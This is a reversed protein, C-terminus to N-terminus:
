PQLLPVTSHTLNPLTPFLQSCSLMVLSWVLLPVGDLLRDTVSCMRTFLSAHWVCSRVVFVAYVCRMRPICIWHACSSERTRVAELIDSLPVRATAVNLRSTDGGGGGGGGLSVRALSAFALESDSDPLAAGAERLASRFAMLDVCGDRRADHRRLTAGLLAITFDSKTTLYAKLAPILVRPNGVDLFSYGHETQTLERGLASAAAAPGGLSAVYAQTLVSEPTRAPARTPTGGAMRSALTARGGGGGASGPADGGTPWSGFILLDFYADDEVGTSIDAYYAEFEAASVSRSAGGGDGKAGIGFTDYFESKVEEATRRTARVDPHTEPHFSAALREIPVYGTGGALRRFADHVAVRRRPPMTGRVLRFITEFSVVGRRGSGGGGGGSRGQAANWLTDGEEPTLYWEADNCLRAFADPTVESGGRTLTLAYRRLYILSMAGKKAVVSRVKRLVAELRGSEDTLSSNSHRPLTAAALARFSADSLLRHVQMKQEHSEPSVGHAGPRDNRCRQSLDLAESSSLGYALGLLIAAVVGTRGNGDGCQIYLYEGAQM